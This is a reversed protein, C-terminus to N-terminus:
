ATTRGVTYLVIVGGIHWILHAFSLALLVGSPALMAAARARTRTVEAKRFGVYRTLQLQSWWSVWFHDTWHLARVAVVLGPALACVAATDEPLYPDKRNPRMANPEHEDMYEENAGDLPCGLPTPRGRMAFAAM